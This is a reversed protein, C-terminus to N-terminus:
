ASRLRDPLPTLSPRRQDDGAASEHVDLSELAADLLEVLRRASDPSYAVSFAKPRSPSAFHLHVWTRGETDGATGVEVGVDTRIRSKM